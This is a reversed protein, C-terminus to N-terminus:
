LIHSRRANFEMNRTRVVIAILICAAIVNCRDYDWGDYFRVM